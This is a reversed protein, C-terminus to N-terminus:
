HPSLYVGNCCCRVVQALFLAADLPTFNPCMYHAWLAIINVERGVLICSCAFHLWLRMKKSCSQTTFFWVVKNYFLVHKFYTERSHCQAVSRIGKGLFTRFIIFLIINFVPREYKFLRLFYKFYFFQSHHSFLQEIYHNTCVNFLLYKFDNALKSTSYARMRVSLPQTIYLCLGM